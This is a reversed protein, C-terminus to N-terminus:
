SRIKLIAYQQHMCHIIYYLSEENLTLRLLPICSEVVSVGQRLTV